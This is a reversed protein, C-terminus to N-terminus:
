LSFNSDKEIRLKTYLIIAADNDDDDWCVVVAVDLSVRNKILLSHIFYL